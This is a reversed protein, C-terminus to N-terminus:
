ESESRPAPPWSASPRAPAGAPPAGAPPTGAPAAGVSAAATDGGAGRASAPGGKGASAYPNRCSKEIQTCVGRLLEVEEVELRARAFLRRLRPMLKKPHRPDLFGIRVLARELHEFLAEVQAHSAFRAPPPSAPRERSQLRDHSRLCYAIIQVAQALNLSAYDSGGPITCLRQCRGVEEISLGDREAGFVFAVRSSEDAGAEAFALAVVEEPPQPSPGFSRMEASVAITLSCPALAADLSDVVQARELVEVAGSARAVAQPDAAIAASRPAVLVLERLGMVHMARAAAGVNGPHSTRVLVFRIRSLWEPARAHLTSLAM